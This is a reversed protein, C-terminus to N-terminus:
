DMLEIRKDIVAEILAIARRVTEQEPITMLSKEANKKKAAYALMQSFFIADVGDDFAIVNDIQQKM